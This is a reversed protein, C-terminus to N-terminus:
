STHKPSNTKEIRKGLPGLPQRVEKVPKVVKPIPKKGIPQKKDRM